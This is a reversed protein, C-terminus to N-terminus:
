GSSALLRFAISTNASGSLDPFKSKLYENIEQYGFDYCLHFRPKITTTEVISKIIDFYVMNYAISFLQNIEFNNYIKYDLTEGVYTLLISHRKNDLKTKLSSLDKIKIDKLLENIQTEGDLIVKTKEEKIKFIFQKKYLEYNIDSEEIVYTPHMDQEYSDDSDNGDESRRYKCISNDYDVYFKEDLHKYEASTYDINKDYGLQLEKSYKAEFLSLFTKADKYKTSLKDDLLHKVVEFKFFDDLVWIVHSFFTDITHRDLLQLYLVLMTKIYDLFTSTVDLYNMFKYFYSLDVFFKFITSHDINKSNQTDNKNFSIIFDIVLLYNLTKNFYEEYTAKVFNEHLNMKEFKNICEMVTDFDLPMKIRDKYSTYIAFINNKIYISFDSYGEADEVNDNEYLVRIHNSSALISGIIIKETM